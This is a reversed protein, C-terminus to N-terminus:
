SIEDSQGSHLSLLQSCFGFGILIQQFNAPLNPIFYFFGVDYTFIFQEQHNPYILYKSCENEKINQLHFWESKHSQFYMLGSIWM